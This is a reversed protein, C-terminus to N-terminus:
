PNPQSPTSLPSNVIIEPLYIESPSGALGAEVFNILTLNKQCDAFTDFYIKESLPQGALDKLQVWVSNSSNIVHDSFIIEYGGPGFEQVNGTLSLGVIERNDLTGGSEVVILKVPIGNPGFVQGSIGLFNCGLEPHFINPLWKPSGTQLVYEPTALSIQGTSTTDEVLPTPTLHIVPATAVARTVSATPSSTSTSITTPSPTHTTTETTIQTPTSTSNGGVFPQILSCSALLLGILCSIFLFRNV